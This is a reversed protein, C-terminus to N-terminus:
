FIKACKIFYKWYNAVQAYKSSYKLRVALDKDMYKKMIELKKARIDVIKPQELSIAQDVGYSTLYRNTRGPFGMIM